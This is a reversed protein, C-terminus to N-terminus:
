ASAKAKNRARGEAVRRGRAAFWAARDEHSMAAVRANLAKANASGLKRMHEMKAERDSWARGGGKRGLATMRERVQEPSLSALYNQYIRAISAARSARVQERWGQESGAAAIKAARVREYAMRSRSRGRELAVEARFPWCALVPREVALAARSKRRRRAPVKPAVWDPLDCKGM